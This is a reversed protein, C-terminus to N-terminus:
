LCRASHADDRVNRARGQVRGDDHSKVIVSDCFEALRYPTSQGRLEDGLRRGHAMWRGPAVVGGGEPSRSLYLGRLEETFAKSDGPVFM